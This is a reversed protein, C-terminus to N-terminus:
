RQEQWRATLQAVIEPPVATGGLPRQHALGPGHFDTGGTPVLHHQTAVALLAQHQADDYDGYYCELGGLGAALLEPLTAELDAVSYPHALVAVGGAARILRVAEPPTLRYREVYGPRGRVLYRAFADNVSTAHGAEVLARAVHPRGIAGGALAAVRAYAIPAGAATLQEVMTQARNARADRFRALAGTLTANAPDVFYGLVHVEGSTVHTSLEVGPILQLGATDAAATVEDLGAVTDHDTLALVRLGRAVALAVLQAPALVGDSATSHTHLDVTSVAADAAGSM